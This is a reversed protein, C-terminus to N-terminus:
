TAEIFNSFFGFYLHMLFFGANECLYAYCCVVRQSKVDGIDKMLLKEFDLGLLNLYKM